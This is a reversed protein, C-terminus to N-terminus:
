GCVSTNLVSRCVLKPNSCDFNTNHYRNAIRCLNEIYWVVQPLSPDASTNCNYRAWYECNERLVDLSSACKYGPRAIECGNKPKHLPYSALFLFILFVATVAAEKKGIRGPM